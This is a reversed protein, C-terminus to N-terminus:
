DLVPETTSTISGDSGTAIDGDHETTNDYGVTGAALDALASLSGQDLAGSVAQVVNGDSDVVVFYPFSGGGWASHASGLADDRLTPVVWREREFWKSPPYNPASPSLGTSVAYFGVDPRLGGSALWERVVPVENQCHPCWHAMFAVIKPKGDAGINITEGNLGTGTLSPVPQGVLEQPNKDADPLLGGAIEVVGAETAREQPKASLAVAIVGAFLVVFGVAGLMWWNKPQRTSSLSKTAVTKKKTKGVFM